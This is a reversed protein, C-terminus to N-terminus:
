DAGGAMSTRVDDLEALLLAEAEDDSLAAVLRERASDNEREHQQTHSAGRGEGGEGTGFLERALFSAIADMSPYDFALTAPLARELQLGGGLLTRLEVAMLSDLGLEQLPQKPDLVHSPELGLVRGVQGRVHASLIGARRAPPAANLERRLDRRVPAAAPPERRLLRQEVRQAERMLTAFFPRSGAAPASAFFAPWDIPAIAVQTSPPVRHMARQLADLAVRTPMSGFGREALRDAMQMAAAAGVESWMGWQVSMGPLGRSRRLSMLADVFANAAAYNGQGASGVVSGAATFAVFFDLPLSATHAHLLWSGLVKPAMVRAFREGTQQLLAGDDLVLASHFVGRLPPMHRGFPAFLARVDTARSIDARSVIMRVGRSELERIAVRARDDPASRGALVLHRAGRDALWSAVSLGVGGMGGAILYSSDSRVSPTRDHTVVVKGIHRAQAMFRFAAVVDTVGFPQVPLPKLAGRELEDCVTRLLRNVLEPDSRTAAALDVRLFRVDPRIEAVRAADWVGRKGLEVFRGGHALSALSYAIGDGSLSNVVVHVGGGDTVERIAEEFSTSRSDFVCRVGLSTLHNRKMPSGATAFVEAGAALAIQVAALGVGGAAAHILVREGSRLKALDVLAHQATLFASPTGAAELMDLRDPKRVVLRESVTLHSRFAGPAMGLVADGVRLADVGDGCAVVVGSFDGGFPADPEPYEGLANLVDRFALGTAIIEVEVEGAAPARREAPQFRLNDILRAGESVLEYAGESGSPQEVSVDRLRVLRPVYRTGDRLAVEDEADPSLLESALMDGGAGPALDVRTCRLEPHELAITRGLGWLPAAIPDVHEGPTVAQACRSVLWLRADDGVTALAQCLHLASETLRATADGLDAADTVREISEDLAWCHVVGRLTRRDGRLEQLLREFGARSASYMAPVGDGGVRQTGAPAGVLVCEDGRARLSAALAAGEGGRDALILWLNGDAAEGGGDPAPTRATIVAQSVFPEAASVFAAQAFGEARLLETWSAPELLAYERVDSDSHCWWGDTLGVTLDAFRHRGTGELLVLAAGPAMLRRVHRLTKRLDPTAHLVNAAIVLDAALPAFGQGMPDESIDLARFNMGPQGAFKKRAREVFLPSIDTFLYETRADPLEQLVWSTTGGTGGGIELVRLPRDHPLTQLLSGVTTRVLANFERTLPSGEYLHEAEAVDGGPFLLELPERVGRLVDALSNGCRALLALEGACEPHRETSRLRIAEAEGARLQRLVIWDDGERRIVGSEELIELMRALLREYRSVVGLRERMLVANVCEGIAGSWGLSLLAQQVYLTALEDMTGNLQALLPADASGALADAQARVPAMVEGPARDRFPLSEAEQWAVEYMLDRVATISGPQAVRRLRIGDIEVSIAGSADAIQLDAVISEDGPGAAPRVSARSRAASGLAKLVRVRDFGLPLYTSVSSRPLAAAVTQLCADLLAPHMSYSVASGAHTGPLTADSLAVSGNRRIETVGRFSEGFELGRLAVEAYHESASLTAMGSCGERSLAAPLVGASEYRKVMGSAHLRWNDAAEGSRMAFVKFTSAGIEGNPTLVCQVVVPQESLELPEHLVVDSLEVESCSATQRIAATAMELYAAAPMIVSGNVRHDSLYDPDRASLVNEFVRSVGAFRVASGLLPHVRPVHRHSGAIRLSAAGQGVWYREGSFPYAPLWVKHRPRGDHLAPWDAEGGSTHFRAVSSLMEQWDGRDRRLSSLWSFEDPPLCGQGMGTLVPHPGIELFTDCGMQRLAAMGRAFQVPQRAHERWYGQTTIASGALEGTLNSILPLAPAAFAVRSAASELADLVPDLIPSHFGNSIALPKCDIGRTTLECVAREVEAEYGSIVTNGPGNLAAISIRDGHQDIVSRVLVDDARVAVMRGLQPLSQMLRAREAILMLGDALSFVGAVCAAAYEGASHGLVAAPRVGWSQWLAALAYEVAFLAPQTFGTQDLLATAEEVSGSSPYILSLLPRDLVGRLVADCEDMAARFVPSSAYLERGMGAYQAGQGTFLFAVRPRTGPVAHGTFVNAAEDGALWGRLAKAATASGDSVVSLRDAFHTRGTTATFCIDAMEADVSQELRDVYRRVQEQLAGSSRASITLLQTDRVEEGSSTPTDPAEGLIVHVNTGSAGFSSVGAMRPQESRTWMARETPVRVSLEDWPIHPTPQELHLHPAVLGHRLMLVVKILGAIGSAAELHGINTKVSGVLLQQEVGRGSCLADALARMEIPDGLPTGTGHAEVYSVDNPEAGAAALAGRIVAQQALKNPVTMGSTAGDQNTASGRIVALVTDGGAVADSLRKLVIVGCGEGRAFGDARADFTKCRGDPALMRSRSMTVYMEPGLMANVGGALALDCDGARLSLCAAHVASLSSSCATDIAVSPGQLGLLYSIRGAGFASTSGTASYANMAEVGAERAIHAYDSSTIGVFVGAKTGALSGPAIGANELAAWAVELLLRQQPDMNAAERPAIGFFHPDFRDIDDIFGGFRTVVKGAADPDPDYYAEADWRSRPIPVIGDIGDHLVRWFEEPSNAGGPFRCGLGVIAVPETRARQLADVKGQLAQIALLASHLRDRHETNASPATM